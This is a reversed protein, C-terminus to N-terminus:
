TKFDSAARSNTFAILVTTPPLSKTLQLTDPRSEEFTGLRSTSQIFAPSM